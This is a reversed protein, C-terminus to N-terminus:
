SMFRNRNEYDVSGARMEWLSATYRHPRVSGWVFMGDDHPLVDELVRGGDHLASKVRRARQQAM